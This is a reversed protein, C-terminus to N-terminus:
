QKQRKVEWREKSWKNLSHGQELYVVTMVNVFGITMERLEQKREWCCNAYIIMEKEFYMIKAEQNCTM